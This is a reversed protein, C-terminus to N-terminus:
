IRANESGVDEVGFAHHYRRLRKLAYRLYHLDVKGGIKLDLRRGEETALLREYRDLM